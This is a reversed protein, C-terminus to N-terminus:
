QGSRPPCLPPASPWHQCAQGAAVVRRLGAAPMPRLRLRGFAGAPCLPASCRVRRRRTEHGIRAQRPSPALRIRSTPRDAFRAPWRRRHRNARQDRPCSSLSDQGSRPRIRRHRQEAQARMHTRATGSCALRSKAAGRACASYLLAEITLLHFYGDAIRTDSLVAPWGPRCRPM